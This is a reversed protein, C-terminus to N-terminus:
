VHVSLARGLGTDYVHVVHVNNERAGGNSPTSPARQEMHAWPTLDREALSPNDHRVDVSFRTLQLGHEALVDRLSTMNRQLIERAEPSEAQVVASVRTGDTEVRLFLKGLREPRLELTMFSKASQAWHSFKRGLEEPWDANLFSLTTSSDADTTPPPLAAKTLESFASSQGVGRQSTQFFGHDDRSPNEGFPSSEKDTAPAPFAAKTPESFASSQGVGRQSTQFFGHDDRSPNEGFPSSEDPSSESSGGIDHILITKEEFVSDATETDMSQSFDVAIEQIEGSADLSAAAGGESLVGRFRAEPYSFSVTTEKPGFETMQLASPAPVNRFLELDEGSFALSDDFSPFSSPALFGDALGGFGAAHVKSEKFPAFSQAVEGFITQATPASNRKAVEHIAAQAKPSLPTVTEQLRENKEGTFSPTRSSQKVGDGATNGKQHVVERFQPVEEASHWVSFPEAFRPSMFDQSVADAVGATGFPDQPGGTDGSSSPPDFSYTDALADRQAEAESLLKKLTEIFSRRDYGPQNVLNEANAFPKHKDDGWCLAHLLKLFDEAPIRDQATDESVDHHEISELMVILEQAPLTGGGGTRDAAKKRTEAAASFAALIDQVVLPDAIELKAKETTQGGLVTKSTRPPGEPSRNSAQATAIGVSAAARSGNFSGGVLLDKQHRMEEEFSFTEISRSLRQREKSLFRSVLEARGVSLGRM